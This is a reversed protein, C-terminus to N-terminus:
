VHQGKGEPANQRGEVLRWGLWAALLGLIVSASVYLAAYGLEGQRILRVMEVSFTSFTTFAGIFGTGFGAKIWPHLKPNRVAGYATFAGLVLSGALNIPLTAWISLVGARAAEVSIGYRLLAGFIGAVGVIFYVM